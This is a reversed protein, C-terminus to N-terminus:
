MLRLFSATVSPILELGPRSIDSTTIEKDLLEPRTYVPELKIKKALMDVTVAM